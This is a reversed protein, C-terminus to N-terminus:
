YDVVVFMVHAVVHVAIIMDFGIQTRKAYLHHDHGDGLAGPLVRVQDVLGDVLDYLLELCCAHTHLHALGSSDESKALSSATTVHDRQLTHEREERREVRRRDNRALRGRDGEGGWVREREHLAWPIFGGRMQWRGFHKGARRDNCHYDQREAVLSM